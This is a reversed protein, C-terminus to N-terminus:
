VIVKVPRNITIDAPSVISNYCVVEVGSAVADKLAQAFKPDIEANPRFENVSDVQVLFFVYSKYGADKAAVLEELHKRGRETPADPFSAVREDYLTVGKVEVFIKELEGAETMREVYVDFRSNNFKVERKVLSVNSFLKGSMIFDAVVANPVQSDFNVLDDGKYISILDYQYKRKFNDSKLAYGKSGPILLEKCRGTNKVHVDIEVGDLVVTAVFRNLRKVFVCEYINDRNYM